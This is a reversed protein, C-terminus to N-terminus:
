YGFLEHLFWERDQLKNRLGKGLTFDPTDADVRRSANIPDSTEIFEIAANLNLMASGLEDRLLRALDASFTEHRVTFRTLKNAAYAARVDDRSKCQALKAEGGPMTLRLYRFSQLGVLEAVSGDGSRAYGDGLETANKPRLVFRLWDSFGSITGDYFHGHGRKKLATSIKGGVTKCGYSYLSLYADLPDRVSIFYFKSRDCDAEMGKHQIRRLEREKSHERLLTAIFSSGTKEMDLYVYSEFELM